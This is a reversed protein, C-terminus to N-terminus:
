SLAKDYHVYHVPDVLTWLVIYPAHYLLVRFYVFTSTPALILGSHQLCRTNFAPIRLGRLRRQFGREFGYPREHGSM